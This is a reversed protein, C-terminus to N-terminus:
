DTERENQIRNILEQIAIIVLEFKSTSRINPRWNTIVVKSGVKDFRQWKLASSINDDTWWKKKHVLDLTLNFRARHNEMFVELEFQVDGLKGIITKEDILELGLETFYDHTQYKVILDKVFRNNLYSQFMGILVLVVIGVILYIVQHEM